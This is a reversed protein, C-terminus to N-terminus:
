PTLPRGSLRRGAEIAAFGNENRSQMVMVSWGEARLREVDEANSAPYGCPVGFEQCAALISAIGQAFAEQDRVREGAENTTSFVGGLTGAGAWMVGLGPTAAIESVNEIGPLSEVIAWVILEGEPNLPWVDAKEKYEDVSMGWHAAARELGTEPRTGGKSTFRMAAIAQELEARSEVAETMIGVHGADLQAHIRQTAAEPNRNFVGTKAIFAHTRATGGAKTLEDVYSEFTESTGSAYQFDALQYDLTERAVESLVPQPPPPPPPEGEPAGRGGRGGGRGATIPPHTIGFVPLDAEHLAIMPNLRESSAQSAQSAETADDVEGTSAADCGALGVLM